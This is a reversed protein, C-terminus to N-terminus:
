LQLNKHTGFTEDNNLFDWLSVHPLNTMNDYISKRQRSVFGCGKLDKQDGRGVCSGMSKPYLSGLEPFGM